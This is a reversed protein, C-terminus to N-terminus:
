EAEALPSVHLGGFANIPVKLFVRGNGNIPPLYGARMNIQLSPLMLMPMGLTADRAERMAVFEDESIGRGIHINNQRQQAITSVFALTITVCM